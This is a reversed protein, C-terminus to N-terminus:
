ARGEFCVAIEALNVTRVKILAILFRALFKIRAKNWTSNAALTRELLSYETM